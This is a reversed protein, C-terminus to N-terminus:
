KYIIQPKIPLSIVIPCYIFVVDIIALSLSRKRHVSIVIPCYIFVADIIALSLSRKRHVSIVIPCYIFVVDIIALSLSIAASHINCRKQENIFWMKVLLLKYPREM